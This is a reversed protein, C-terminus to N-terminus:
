FEKVLIQVGELDTDTPVNEKAMAEAAEKSEALVSFVDGLLETTGDVTILIACQFLKKM